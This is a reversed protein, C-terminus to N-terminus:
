FFPFHQFGRNLTQENLTISYALCVESADSVQLSGPSRRSQVWGERSWRPELHLPLSWTVTPPGEEEALSGTEPLPSPYINLCGLVDLARNSQLIPARKSFSKKRKLQTQKVHPFPFPHGLFFASSRVHFNLICKLFVVFTIKYNWEKHKLFSVM